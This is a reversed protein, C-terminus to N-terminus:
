LEVFEAATYDLTHSSFNYFIEQYGETPFSKLLPNSTFNYDLLLNRTDVKDFYILGFFEVLERELWNSNLYLGIITKNIDTKLFFNNFIYRYSTNYDLLNYIILFNLYRGSVECINTIFNYNSLNSIDVGVMDMLSSFSNYISNKFFVLVKYMDCFLYIYTHTNYLNNNFYFRYFINKEHFSIFTM